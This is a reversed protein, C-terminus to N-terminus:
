IVRHRGVKPGKAASDPDPKVLTVTANTDHAVATEAGDGDEEEEAFLLGITEMYHSMKWMEDVRVSMLDFSVSVIPETAGSSSTPSGPRDSPTLTPLKPVKPYRQSFHNLLIHRAGM